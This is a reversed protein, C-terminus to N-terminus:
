FNGLVFGAVIELQIKNTCLYNDGQTIFTMLVNAQKM